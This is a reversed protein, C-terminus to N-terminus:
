KRECVDVNLLFPLGPRGESGGEEPVLHDVVPGLPLADGVDGGM